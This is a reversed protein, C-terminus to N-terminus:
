VYYQAREVSQPIRMFIRTGQEGNETKRIDYQPGYQGILRQRVMYIDSSVRSHEYHGRFPEYVKQLEKVSFGSGEDEIMIVCDGCDMYCIIRISGHGKRSLIGQSVANEVFPLLTNPLTMQEGVGETQIIEYSMKDEFRLKQIKLYHEVHELEEWLSVPEDDPKMQYRIMQVLLGVIEGTQSADEMYALGAAVNLINMLFHPNMKDRKRAAALEEM